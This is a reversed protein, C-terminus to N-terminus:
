QMLLGGNVNISQGTVYSAGDSLLFLVVAAVDDPTGLRALPIERLAREKVSLKDPTNNRGTDIWGPCVCNATVYPAAERAIGMTLTILAAKSAGYTATSFYGRGTKGIISSIAVIRGFRRELMGPLVERALALTARANVDMVRQWDEDSTDVIQKPHGIGANCVLLDIRGFAATAAVVLSRIQATDGVDAQVALARRGMSRIQAVVERASGEDRAYNVVVDAGEKALLLSTARGIGRSGGTVLAVRDALKM